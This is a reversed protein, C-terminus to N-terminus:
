PRVIELEPPDDLLAQMDRAQCPGYEGLEAPLGVLCDVQSQRIEEIKEHDVAKLSRSKQM